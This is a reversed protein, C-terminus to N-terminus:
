TCIIERLVWGLVFECAVQSRTFGSTQFNHNQQPQQNPGAKLPSSLSDNMQQTIMPQVLNQQNRNVDQGVGNSNVVGLRQPHGLLSPANSMQMPLFQNMNQMSLQGNPAFFQGQSANQPLSCFQRPLPFMSPNGLNHQSNPQSIPIFQRTGLLNNQPFLFPNSANMFNPQSSTLPLQMNPMTMAMTQINPNNLPFPMQPNMLGMQPQMQMSNQM